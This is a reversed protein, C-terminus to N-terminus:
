LYFALTPTNYKIKGKKYANLIYFSENWNLYHKLKLIDASDIITAKEEFHQIGYYGGYSKIEFIKFPDYFSECMNCTEFPNLQEKSCCYKKYWEGKYNKLTLITDWKKIFKEKNNNPKESPHSQIPNDNITYNMTLIFELPTPKNFIKESIKHYSPEFHKIKAYNGIQAKFALFLLSKINTEKEHPFLNEMINTDKWRQAYTTM